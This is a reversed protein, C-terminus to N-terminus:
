RNSILSFLSKSQQIFFKRGGYILGTFLIISTTVPALFSNLIQGYIGSKACYYLVGMWSNIETMPDFSGHSTQPTTPASPKGPIVSSPIAAKTPKWSPKVIEDEGNEITEDLAKDDESGESLGMSKLFEVAKILVPTATVAAAAFAAPVAFGIGSMREGAGHEIAKKLVVPDGGLNSWFSDFRGKDKRWAKLMRTALKLVNASVLGIFAGRPVALGVGKLKDLVKKRNEKREEKSKRGIGSLTVPEEAFISELIASDAANGMCCNGNIFDIDTLINGSGMAAANMFSYKGSHMNSGRNGTFLNMKNKNLDYVNSRSHTVENDFENNEMADLTIYGKACPYPVIIYIHTFDKDSYFVHKLFFPINARRLVSGIIVTMKKCDGIGRTITTEPCFVDEDPAVDLRPQVNRNVYDQLRKLFSLRDPDTAQLEDCVAGAFQRIWDMNIRDIILNITDPLEANRKVLVKQM